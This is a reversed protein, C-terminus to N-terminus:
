AAGGRRRLELRAVSDVTRVVEDDPLPPRCRAVNWCRCLELVVVPDVYRRLLHGALRAAAVNRQGETVGAVLSRWESAPTTAKTETRSAREIVWEPCESVDAIDFRGVWSYPGHVSVSPPAVVYGGLARLDVHPLLGVANRLQIGAPLAYWLHRHWEGRGTIATLTAPLTLGEAELAAWGDTGDVDIVLCGAPVAIAVLAWPWRRWWALITERDTTADNLGHPTIPSKDRKCPFVRWGPEAYSLAAQLRADDPSRHDRRLTTTMPAPRVAGSENPALMTM